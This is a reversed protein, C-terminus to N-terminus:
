TEWFRLWMWTKNIWFRRTEDGASRANDHWQYESRASHSLPFWELCQCREVRICVGRGGEGVSNRLNWTVCNWASLKLKKSLRASNKEQPFLLTTLHPHRFFVAPCYCMRLTPWAVTLWNGSRRLKYKLQVANYLCPITPWICVRYRSAGFEFPQYVPKINQNFRLLFINSLHPSCICAYWDSPM